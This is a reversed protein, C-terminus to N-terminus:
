YESHITHALIAEVDRECKGREGRRPCVKSSTITPSEHQMGLVMGSRFCNCLPISAYRESLGTDKSGSATGCCAQFRQRKYGNRNKRHFVIPAEAITSATATAPPPLISHAAPRECRPAQPPASAAPHVDSSLESPFDFRFEVRVDFVGCRQIMAVVGTWIATGHTSFDDAGKSLKHGGRTAWGETETSTQTLALRKNYPRPVGPLRSGFCYLWFVVQKVGQFFSVSKADYLELTASISLVMCNQRALLADAANADSRLETWDRSAQSHDCLLSSPPPLRATHVGAMVRRVATHVRGQWALVTGPGQISKTRLAEARIEVNIDRGRAGKITSNSGPNRPLGPKLLESMTAVHSLLRGMFGYFPAVRM